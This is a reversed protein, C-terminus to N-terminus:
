GRVAYVRNEAELSLIESYHHVMEDGVQTPVELVFDAFHSANFVVFALTLRDIHRDYSGALDPFAVPGTDVQYRDDGRRTNMTKVPCEIIARLGNQAIETQTVLPANAYTAERIAANSALAEVARGEVLHYDQGDWWEAAPRTERYGDFVYAKRRFVVGWEPGFIPLFDYNDEILLNREGFTNESKCSGVQYYDESAGSAEDVIRTRSEVWFRVENSPAKGILFSRGYDLPIM